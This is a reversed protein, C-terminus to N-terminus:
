ILIDGYTCNLFYYYFSIGRVWGETSSLAADKLVVVQVCEAPAHGKGLAQEKQGPSAWLDHQLSAELGGPHLAPRWSLGWPTIGARQHGAGRSGAQYTVSM